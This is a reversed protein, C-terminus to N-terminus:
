KARVGGKGWQYDSIQSDTETKKKKNMQQNMKEIGYILSLTAYKDKKKQRRM